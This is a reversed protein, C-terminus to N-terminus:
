YLKIYICSNSNYQVNKQKKYKKLPKTPHIDIIQETENKSFKNADSNHCIYSLSSRTIVTTFIKSSISTSGMNPFNFNEILM